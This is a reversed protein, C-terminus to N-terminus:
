RTLWGGDVYITTGTVFDSDHSALFVAAGAVDEPEGLRGLPTQSVVTELQRQDGTLAANMPTRIIGPGIANVQIKMPGLELALQTTLASVGGKSACYVSTIPDGVLAAISSMNIIRGRGREIMRPLVARTMLFIGRLNVAMVRDWEDETLELFPKDAAIGANNVLVDIDGFTERAIAVVHAVDSSSSVDGKALVAQGGGERIRDVVRQAKEDSSRYNVVVRAGENAFRQAIASGIGDSAGTVISVTGALRIRDGASM